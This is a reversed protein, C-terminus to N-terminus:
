RHLAAPRGGPPIACSSPMSAAAAYRLAIPEAERPSCYLYGGGPCVVIAPRKKELGFRIECDLIYGELTASKSGPVNMHIMKM